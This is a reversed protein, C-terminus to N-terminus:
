IGLRQLKEISGPSSKSPPGQYTLPRISDIYLLIQVKTLNQWTQMRKDCKDIGEFISLTSKHQKAVIQRAYARQNAFDGHWSRLQSPAAVSLDILDTLDIEKHDTSCATCHWSKCLSREGQRRLIRQRSRLDAHRHHSLCWIYLLCWCVQWTPESSMAVLWEVWKIRILRCDYNSM